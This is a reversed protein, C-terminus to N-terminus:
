PMQEFQTLFTSLADGRTYISELHILEDSTHSGDGTPGIGDILRLGPRTMFNLDSFGSSPDLGIPGRKEVSAIIKAYEAMLRRSDADASYPPVFLATTIKTRATEGTAAAKVYPTALVTEVAATLKAGENADQFRCEIKMTAKGCVINFKETGGLLQGTSVTNGVNYDTLESAKTAKIAIDICANVGRHHAVGSHAEKGTVEVDYQKVGKRSHPLSGLRAPEAGIVLESDRGFGALLERFGVSGTEESPSVVVRLSYKPKGGALYSKLGRLVVVIGGKNDIVGSGKAIKGNSSIEFPVVSKYVTDAHLVITIYKGALAGPLTAVLQRGANVAPDQSSNYRIAFGLKQFERAVIAQVADVGKADATDSSTNVLERLLAVEPTESALAPYPLIIAILAAFLSKM